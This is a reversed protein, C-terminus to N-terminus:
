AVEEEVELAIREPVRAAPELVEPPDEVGLAVESREARVVVRPLAGRELLEDVEHVRAQALVGVQVDVVVRLVLDGRELAERAAVPRALVLEVIQEAAADEDVQDADHAVPDTRRPGAVPQLLELR